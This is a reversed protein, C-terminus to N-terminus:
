ITLICRRPRPLQKNEFATCTGLSSTAPELGTEREMNEIIQMIDRGAYRGKLANIATFGAECDRSFLALGCASTWGRPKANLSYPQIVFSSHRIRECPFM